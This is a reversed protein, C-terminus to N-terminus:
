NSKKGRKAKPKVQGKIKVVEAELNNLSDVINDLAGLDISQKQFGLGDIRDNIENLAKAIEKVGFL